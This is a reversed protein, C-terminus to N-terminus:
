RSEWLRLAPAKRRKPPAPPGVFEGASAKPLEAATPMHARYRQQVIKSLLISVRSVEAPEVRLELYVGHTGDVAAKIRALLPSWSALRLWVSQALEKQVAPWQSAFASAAAADKFDLRMRLLPRVDDHVTLRIGDPSPLVAAEAGLEVKFGAIEAMFVTPLGAISPDPSQPFDPFFRTKNSAVAASRQALFPLHEDRAFAVVGPAPLVFIRPDGRKAWWVEQPDAASMGEREEWQLSEGTVKDLHRKLEDDSRRAQALLLTQTLETFNSSAIMVRDYAEIPSLGANGTVRNCDPIADIMRAYNKRHPSRRLNKADVVVTMVANGPSAAGVSPMARVAFPVEGKYPARPGTPQAPPKPPAPPGMPEQPAKAVTKDPKPEAAPAKDKAKPAKRPPKPRATNAQPTPAGAARASRKLPKSAKPPSKKPTKTAPKSREPTKPPAAVAAQPLVVSGKPPTAAAEALAPRPMDPPPPPGEPSDQRAPSPDKLAPPPKVDLGTLESPEPVEFKITIRQSSTATSWLASAAFVGHVGVSFVVAM